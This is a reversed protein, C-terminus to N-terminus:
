PGLVFDKKQRDKIKLMLDAMADWRDIFEINKRNLERYCDPLDFHHLVNMPFASIPWNYFTSEAVDSYSRLANKLIVKKVNDNLVSAFTAPQCGWGNGLITIDTHGISELWNLISLLDYTRKGLLPEDVMNSLMGYFYETNHDISYGVRTNSLTQGIGRLDCAYIAYDSHDSIIDRIKNDNILEDDMGLHSVYVLAKKPSGHPRSYINDKTLRYVANHIGSETEVFMDTM